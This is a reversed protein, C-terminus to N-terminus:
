PRDAECVCVEADCVEEESDEEYAQFRNHVKVAFASGSTSQMTRGKEEEKDEREDDTGEIM